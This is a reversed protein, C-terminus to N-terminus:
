SQKKHGFFSFSFLLISMKCYILTMIVANRTQFGLKRWDVTAIIFSYWVNQNLATLKICIDATQDVHIM